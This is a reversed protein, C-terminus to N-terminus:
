RVWSLRMAVPDPYPDGAAAVKQVQGSSLDLVYLAWGGDRNSLFALRKGDPSWAPAVDAGADNTLRTEQGSALDVLYLEWNGARASAFAVRSGDPSWSPATDTPDRTLRVPQFGGANIAWVACNDGREDCGHYAVRSGDPAWAPM